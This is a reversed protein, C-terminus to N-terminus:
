VAEPDRKCNELVSNISTVWERRREDGLAGSGPLLDWYGNSACRGIGYFPAGRYSALPGVEVAGWESIDRQVRLPGLGLRYVGNPCISANVSVLFLVVLGSSLAIGFGVFLQFGAVVCGAVFLSSLVMLVGGGGMVTLRSAVGRPLDRCSTEDLTARTM